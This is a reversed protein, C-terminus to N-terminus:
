RSQPPLLFTFVAGRDIQSQVSIQGGQAEVLRKTIALGLGAGEKAKDSIQVFRDFIQPLYEVPIGKGTDALSVAIDQGSRKAALTIEGGRPTHRVANSTLDELIRRIYEPDANILPLDPPLNVRFKIDAAEIQLRLSEAIEQLVLSLDIRRLSPRDEGSELRSLALLDRLVAALRGCEERCGYLLDQQKENLEGAAGELILHIGTEVSILPTRLKAAAIDVFESKFRDLDRLRTIDDMLMVAGLLLGHEDCLPTTRLRYAHEAGNLKIPVASAITESAVACQLKLAENVAMAIRGDGAIEALPKGENSAESGFIKEAPPNLKTVRGEADTVVVPDYLSDLAAETTQQALMLRGLDSRRLQRIREAMRNFEAALLGVEDHTLIAARVSLDGGAYRSAVEILERVPRVIRKALQFSLALGALVLAAALGLTLWLSRSAVGAAQNSKALMAKQNLDLLDQCKGRLRHFAPELETFYKAQLPAATYPQVPKLEVFAAESLRFYDDRGSRIAQILEPEGPETINRAAKEMADDFRVRNERLQTEARAFQGLLAIVAASDQRELSEKMEQAAIVSDYNNALIKRSIDGLEHLKFASWGGLAALVGIFLLYSLLLRVRLSM